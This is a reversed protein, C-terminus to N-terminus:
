LLQDLRMYQSQYRSPLRGRAVATVVTVTRSLSEKDTTYVLALAVALAQV